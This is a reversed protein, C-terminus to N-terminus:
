GSVSKLAPMPKLRPQDDTLPVKFSPPKRQVPFYPLRHLTDESPPLPPTEPVPDKPPPTEPMPEELPPTEPMPEELPPTEPVPDELPPIEPMPEELPPTEPVPDELPSTEPPPIEPVNNKSPPTGADVLPPIGVSIELAYWYEQSM